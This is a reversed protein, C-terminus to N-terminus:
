SGHNLRVSKPLPHPQNHNHHSFWHVQTCTHPLFVPVPLTRDESTRLTIDTPDEKGFTDHGLTTLPCESMGSVRDLSEDSGGSIDGGPGPGGGNTRPTGFHTNKVFDTHDSVGFLYQTVSSVLLHAVQDWHKDNMWANV